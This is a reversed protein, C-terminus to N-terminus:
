VMAGVMTSLQALASSRRAEDNLSAHQVSALHEILQDLGNNFAARVPKGEDERAVDVALAAVPCSTGSASRNRATLYGEILAALAGEADQAGAIRKKWREAAGEFANACAVATLADKSQFHGY